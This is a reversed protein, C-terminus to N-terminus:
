WRMRLLIITVGGSDGFFRLTKTNSHKQQISREIRKEIKKGM